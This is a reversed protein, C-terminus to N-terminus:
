IQNKNERQMRERHEKIIRREEEIEDIYAEMAELEHERCGIKDVEADTGFFHVEYVRIVQLFDGMDTIYGISEKKMMLSGVPAFPYTGDNVIDEKLKVKQGVHFKAKDEDRGSRNKTINDYLKIKGDVIV